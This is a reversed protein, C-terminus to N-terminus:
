FKPRWRNLLYLLVLLAILGVVILWTADKLIETEERDIQKDETASHFAAEEEREIDNEVKTTRDIIIPVDKPETIAKAHIRGTTPEYYVELQTGNTSAKLTDGKILNDLPKSAKATDGPLKVSTDIKETIISVSKDRTSITSTSDKTEKQVNKRLTGCSALMMALLLILIHKM